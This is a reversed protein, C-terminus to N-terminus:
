LIADDYNKKAKRAKGGKAPATLATSAAPKDGKKKLLKRARDAAKADDTKGAGSFVGAKMYFQLFAGFVILLSGLYKLPRGADHGVQFISAFDGSETPHFSSQYFTLKRHTLPQNMTITVPKDKIGAKEDTLLVESTYSAPNNVGPDFAVEFDKLLLSFGLKERESDFAVDYAKGRFNVRTYPPM